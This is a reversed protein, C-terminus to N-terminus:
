LVHYLVCDTLDLLFSLVSFFSPRMKCNHLQLVPSNAGIGRRGFAPEPIEAAIGNRVFFGRGHLRPKFIMDLSAPNDSM